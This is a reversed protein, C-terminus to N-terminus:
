KQVPKVVWQMKSGDGSNNRQRHGGEAAGDEVPDTAKGSTKGGETKGGKKGKGLNGDGGGKWKGGGKQWAPASSASFDGAPAALESDGAGAAFILPPPQARVGWPKWYGPSQLGMQMPPPMMFEPRGPGFNGGKGHMPFGMAHAFEPPPMGKGHMPFGMGHAFEPPPMGKGHMPFGMGHAFEPPPMGPNMQPPMHAFGPGGPPVLGIGQGTSPFFSRMALDSKIAANLPKGKFLQSRLWLVVDQTGDDVNYKVFWTNNVEAKTHVIQDAHPGGALLALIEEGTTNEPVDRLIIVNRKSKLVPRVMNGEADPSLRKSRAAAAAIQEHTAGFGQLKSHSLLVTIPIYMQQNMKSALFQDKSLNKKSLISELAEQLKADDSREPEAQGPTEEEM